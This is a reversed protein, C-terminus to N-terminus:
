FIRILFFMLIFKDNTIRVNFDSDSIDQPEPLQDLVNKVLEDIDSAEELFIPKWSDESRPPFYVVGADKSLKDKCGNECMFIRVNIM